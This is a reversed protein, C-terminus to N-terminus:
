IKPKDCVYMVDESLSFKKWEAATSFVSFFEEKINFGSYIRNKFDLGYDYFHENILPNPEDFDETADLSLNIPVSLFLAGGPKLVRYLEKIAKRDDPVHEIVRHCLIFDWKNDECDIDMIDFKFDSVSENLMKNVTVGDEYNSTMINLTSSENLYSLVGAEPGFYLIDGTKKILGMKKYYLMHGRHRNHSGCSPCLANFTVYSRSVYPKFFLGSWDCCSCQKRKFPTPIFSLGYLITGLFLRVLGNIGGKLFHSKLVSFM